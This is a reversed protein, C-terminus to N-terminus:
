KKFILYLLIILPILLPSKFFDVVVFDKDEKNENEFYVKNKYYPFIEILQLILSM